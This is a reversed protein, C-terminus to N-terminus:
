ELVLGAVMRVAVFVVALALGMAMWPVRRLHAFREKRQSGNM